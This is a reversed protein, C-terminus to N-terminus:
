NFLLDFKDTFSLTSFNLLFTDDILRKITSCTLTAYSYAAEIFSSHEFTVAPMLGCCYFLPHHASESFIRQCETMTVMSYQNSRPLTGSIVM